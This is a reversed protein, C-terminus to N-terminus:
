LGDAAAVDLAVGRPAAGGPADCVSFILGPMLCYLSHLQRLFLGRDSRTFLLLPAASLWELGCPRNNM